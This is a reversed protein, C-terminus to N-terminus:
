GSIVHCGKPWKIYNRTSFMLVHCLCSRASLLVAGYTVWGDPHCIKQAELYRLRLQVDDV